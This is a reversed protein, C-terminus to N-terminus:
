DADVPVLVALDDNLVTSRLLDGDLSVVDHADHLNFFVLKIGECIIACCVDTRGDLSVDQVSGPGLEGSVLDCSAAFKCTGSSNRSRYMSIRNLCWSAMLM